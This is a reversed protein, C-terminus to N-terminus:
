YYTTLQVAISQLRLVSVTVERIVLQHMHSLVSTDPQVNPIQHVSRIVYGTMSPTDMKVHHVIVVQITHRVDRRQPVLM